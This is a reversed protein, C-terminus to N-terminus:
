QPQEQTMLKRIAVACEDIVVEPKVGLRWSDRKLTEVHIAARELAAQEIARAVEYDRQTVAKTPIRFRIEDIEDDTLM